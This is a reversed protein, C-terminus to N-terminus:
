RPGGAGKPTRGRNDPPLELRYPRSLMREVGGETCGLLRAIASCGLGLSNYYAARFQRGVPVKFYTGEGCRECLYAAITEGFRDALIQPKSVYVRTGAATELLEITAKNGLDRRLSDVVREDGDGFGIRGSRM